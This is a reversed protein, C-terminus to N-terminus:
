NLNPPRPTEMAGSVDGFVKISQGAKVIQLDLEVGPASTTGAVEDPRGPEVREGVGLLALRDLNGRAVGKHPLRVALAGIPDDRM